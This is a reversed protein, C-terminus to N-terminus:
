PYIEDLPNSNGIQSLQNITKLIASFDKGNITIKAISEEKLNIFDSVPIDKFGLALNLKYLPDKSIDNILELVQSYLLNQEENSSQNQLAELSAKAMNIYPSFTNNTQLNFNFDFEKLTGQKLFEEFNNNFDEEFKQPSNTLNVALQDTDFKVNLNDLLTFIEEKFSGKLNTSIVNEKNNDLKYSFAYNLKKDNKTTLSTYTFNYTDKSLDQMLKAIKEDNILQKSANEVAKISEDSLKLNEFILNAELKDHKAFLHTYYDKYSILGSINNETYIENSRFKINQIDFIKAKENSLSFNPSQCEVFAKDAKCTFNKFDIKLNPFASMQEQIIKQTSDNLSKEYKKVVEDSLDNSSCANLFFALAGFLALNKKM